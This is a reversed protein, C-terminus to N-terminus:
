ARKAQALAANLAKLSANTEELQKRAIEAGANLAVLENRLGEVENQVASFESEEVQRVHESLRKIEVSVFVLLAWPAARRALMVWGAWGMTSFRRVRRRWLRRTRTDM